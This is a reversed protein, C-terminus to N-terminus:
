IDVFAAKMCNDMKELDTVESGERTCLYTHFMTYHLQICGKHAKNTETNIHSDKHAPMHTNKCVYMNAYVHTLLCHLTTVKDGAVM